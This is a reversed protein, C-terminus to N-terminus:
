GRFGFSRLIGEGIDTYVSMANDTKQWEETGRVEQEFEYRTMPKPKGDEGRRQMARQVLPDDFNVDEISKELLNAMASRFDLAIESVDMGRAFDDAFGAYTVALRNDRYWQKLEDVTSAGSQIQDIYTELQDSSVVLGNATFWNALQVRVRGREGGPNYQEDIAPEDEAAPQRNESIWRRVRRALAMQDNEDGAYILEIALEEATATDLQGGDEGAYFETIRTVADAVRKRWNAQNNRGYRDLDATIEENTRKGFKTDEVFERFKRYLDDETIEGRALLDSLRRFVTRLEPYARILEMTFGSEDVIERVTAEDNVYVADRAKKAEARTYNNRVAQYFLKRKARTRLDDETYGYKRLLERRKAPDNLVDPVRDGDEDGKSKNPGGSAANPGPIPESAM